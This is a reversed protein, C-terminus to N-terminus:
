PLMALGVKLVGFVILFVVGIIAQALLFGLGAYFGLTFAQGPAHAKWMRSEYSLPRVTQAAQALEDLTDM